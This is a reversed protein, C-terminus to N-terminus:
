DKENKQAIIVFYMETVTVHRKQHSLGILIM